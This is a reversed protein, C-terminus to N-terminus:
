VYVTSDLMYYVVKHSVSVSLKQSFSAYRLLSNNQFLLAVDLFAAESIRSEVTNINYNLGM